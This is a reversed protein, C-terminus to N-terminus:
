RLNQVIESNLNVEYPVTGENWTVVVHAECETFDTICPEASNPQTLYYYRNFITQDGSHPNYGFDRDMFIDCGDSPCDTFYNFQFMANADCRQDEGGCDYGNISLIDKLWDVEDEDNMNNDRQNKIVEMSEQALYSAIVQDRAYLAANLGKSAVVLPGAVAIMLITVAVLTEIITFGRNSRTKYISM